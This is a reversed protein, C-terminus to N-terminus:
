FTDNMWFTMSIDADKGKGTFRKITIIDGDEDYLGIENIEAGPLENEGLTCQYKCQTDSLMTYSDYKKRLLEHKLTSENELPTIVKGSGDVGGDGFVFGLIKPLRIEGARARLMKKRGAITIIQNQTLNEAM